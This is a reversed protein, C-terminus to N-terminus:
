GWSGPDNEPSHYEQDGLGMTKIKSSLSIKHPASVDLPRSLTHQILITWYMMLVIHASQYGWFILYDCFITAIKQLEVKLGRELTGIRRM